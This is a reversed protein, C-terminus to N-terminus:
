DDRAARSQILALRLIGTSHGKRHRNLFDRSFAKVGYEHQQWERPAEAERWQARITLAIKTASREAHCSRFLTTSIQLPLPAYGERGATEGSARGEPIRSPLEIPNSPLQIIRNVYLLCDPRKHRVRRLSRM